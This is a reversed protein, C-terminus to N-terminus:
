TQGIEDAILIEADVAPRRHRMQKTKALLRRLSQALANPELPKVFYASVPFIGVGSGGNPDPHGTLIMVPIVPVDPEEYMLALVGEGQGWPLRPELVLVEPKFRRLQALCELGNTSLAVEFGSQRLFSGYRELLPQDSDALLVRHRDM